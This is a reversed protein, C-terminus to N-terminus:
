KKDDCLSFTLQHKGFSLPFYIFDSVIVGDALYLTFFSDEYLKREKKRKSIAILFPLYLMGFPLVYSLQVGIKFYQVINLEGSDCSLNGRMIEEIGLANAM